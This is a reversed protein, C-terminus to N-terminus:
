PAKPKAPEHQLSFDYAYLFEYSEGKGHEFESASPLRISGLVARITKVEPHERWISQALMKVLHERLADYPTRGIKDLLGAIRLGAAANSVPPLEYEVRGDPYYLEFVLKYSDPVNPAFYGYGAEIGAIHLYTALAQRIPNSAALHQGLAADAVREAERSFGKVSSPLITPEQAVLRLTERCSFSLILLVHLAFWCLYVSKQRLV